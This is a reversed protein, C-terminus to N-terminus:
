APAPAPHAPARLPWLAALVLWLALLMLMPFLIAAQQIKLGVVLPPAAGHAAAGLIGLWSIWPSALTRDRATAVIFGILLAGFVPYIIMALVLHTSLIPTAHGAALHEGDVVSVTHFVMEVAQLATGIVAFRVWRASRAPLAVARRYLVLGALLALFGLLLLTHSMVWDPHALMEVMPGRPHQMGGAVVLVGALALSPRWLDSRLNAM